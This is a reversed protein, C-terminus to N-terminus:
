CSLHHLATSQKIHLQSFRIRPRHGCHGKPTEGIPETLGPAMPAADNFSVASQSFYYSHAGYPNGYQQTM